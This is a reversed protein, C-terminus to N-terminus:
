PMKVRLSDGVIAIESIKAWAAALDDPVPHALLLKRLLLDKAFPIRHVPCGGVYFSTPVFVPGGSQREFTGSAQVIFSGSYGFLNFTATNSLQLNGPTVRANLSGLDLPKADAPKDGPKKAAEPAALSGLLVNIEGESIDISEGELFAKRKAAVDASKNFDRGGEILYVANAPADKPIEKVKQVPKAVMLAAGLAVGVAVSLIAGLVVEFTSPGKSSKKASM